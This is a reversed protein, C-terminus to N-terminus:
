KDSTNKPLAPTLKKWFEDIFPHIELPASDIGGMFGIRTVVLDYSPVIFVARDFLGVAAVLDFPADPIYQGAIKNPPNEHTLFYKRGNLWWLTGYSPNMKQSPELMERVDNPDKIIPQGPWRGGNFIFM